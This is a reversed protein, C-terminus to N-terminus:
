HWGLSEHEGDNWHSTKIAELTRQKLRELWLRGHDPLEAAKLESEIRSLTSRLKDIATGFGFGGHEVIHSALCSAVNGDLSRGELLAFAFRLFGPQKSSVSFAIREANDDNEKAIQLLIPSHNELDLLFRGDDSTLDHRNKLTCFCRYAREPNESRLYDWFEHGGYRSFPNWGGAWERWDNANLIAVRETLLEFGFELDTKAIGIAIQNSHYGDNLNAQIGNLIRKGLPILERPLPKNLHLYLSVVDAVAPEWKEGQAMYEMITKVESIPADALWRGGTFLRTVVIPEVAKDTIFNLLRRRNGPTPSTFAIPFLLAGKDFSPNQALRELYCEFFVPNSRFIGSCYVGFRWKGAHDAAESELQALFYEKSDCEGLFGLFESALQSNADKVAAWAAQNVLQPNEIAEMALARLKKQYRYVRGQEEQEWETDFAHNGTAVKLRLAFEGNDFLDRLAALRKLIAAWKERVEEETPKQSWELYRAEVWHIASRVNRVDSDLKGNFSWDVFKEMIVVLQDPSVHGILQSLCHDFENRAIKAIEEDDSQTLEFRIQVLRNVYDYVDRWLRKAPSQGLRRATVSYGSLSQPPATVFAVVHTALLRDVRSTSELLRQIWALREQYSMPFDHYWDVFCECFVHSKELQKTEEVEKLALLELCHMGSACSEAEYALERATSTLGYAKWDSKSTAKLKAKLFRGTRAPVARALCDIHDLVGSTRYSAELPGNEGFVFDWFTSREPLDVTVMRELFRDRSPKSLSTFLDRLASDKIAALDEVLRAAFLPPVVSVYNGRRRIYGMKELAPLLELIRLPQLQLDLSDCVLKLEPNEGYCKLYLVPSLVKLARVGDPGLENQIKRCFREHLQKKLDGSRARLGDRLEAASLLIEPNGGAQLLIWDLAQRDFTAGAAKLLNEADPNDLPKLPPLIKVAEHETLKPMPARADTPVTLILKVRECSLARKALAEAQEFTPDEVIIVRTTGSTGLGRFDTRILEEVVDVVTTSLAIPRTAELALRTKGMGSPGCLVIVKSKADKLRESIEDLEKNRGVLSVSVKYDKWGWETEWADNWSKAVPASFYTLRLAPHKNVIAALQAADIIELQTSGDTEEAIAKKLQTRQANLLSGSHTSATTEVGLQLNTFLTYRCCPKPQMLRNLLKKLAGKLDNCLNSYARERGGGVISRAKYQFVNWGPSLFPSTFSSTPEAPITWESDIGGDAGPKESLIPLTPPAVLGEAVIVANCFNAFRISDSNKSFIDEIMEATIESNM